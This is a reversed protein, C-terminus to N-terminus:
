DMYRQFDAISANDTATNLPCFYSFIFRSSWRTSKANTAYSSLHVCVCALMCLWQGQESPYNISQPIMTSVRLAFFYFYPNIFSSLSGQLYLLPVMPILTHTKCRRKTKTVTSIGVITEVALSGQPVLNSKQTNFGWSIFSVTKWRCM